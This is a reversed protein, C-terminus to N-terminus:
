QQAHMLHLGPQEGGGLGLPVDPVPQLHGSRECWAHIQCPLHFHFSSSYSHYLHSHPRDQVYRCVICAEEEAEDVSLRKHGNGLREQVDDVGELHDASLKEPLEVAAPNTMGM